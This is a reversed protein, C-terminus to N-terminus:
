AKRRHRGFRKHDVVRGYFEYTEGPDLRRFYGKVVVETEDFQQNTELIKIKAISFHEQKNEFITHIMEGKIFNKLEAPQSNEM